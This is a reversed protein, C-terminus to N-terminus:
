VLLGAEAYVAEVAAVHRELTFRAASARGQAAISSRLSANELLRWCTRVWADLDDPALVFGDAGHTIVEAVGCESSVIFPVGVSQAEVGVRGFGENVAPHVIVDCAAMHALPDEVFGTLMLRRGEEGWAAIRADLATDYPEIRRGCILGWVPRGDITVPLARLIDILVHPRKRQSLSGFIGMVLADAPISWRARVAAGADAWQAAALDQEFPDYILSARKRAFSPLGRTCFDSMSIIRKALLLSLDTSRSPAYTTRWHVIVPTRTVAAPATWVRMMRRDNLHLVDIGNERLARRCGGVLSAVGFDFREFPTRNGSANPLAPLAIVPLGRARAMEAVPGDGHVGISVIRGRRMLGEALPLAGLLHGGVGHAYFPMCIHPARRQEAFAAARTMAPFPAQTVRAIV